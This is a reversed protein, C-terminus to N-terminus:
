NNKEHVDGISEFILGKRDLSVDVDIDYNIKSINNIKKKTKNYIVKKFGLVDSNNDELLRIFENCNDNIKNNIINIIEKINDENKLNIDEIEDLNGNIKLKIIIKNNKFNIKINKDLTKFVILKDKYYINFLYLADANNLLNFLKVDKFDIKKVIKNENFIVGQDIVYNNNNIHGYPLILDKMNSLYKELLEYYKVDIINNFESEIMQKIYQGVIKDKEKISNITDNINDDVITKFNVGVNNERTLYDIISNLKNNIADQSLVLIDLDVFYLIKNMGFSTDQIASDLSKGKGCYILSKNDEDKINEKIELTVIYNDDKYDVAIMSVVALEDLEIYNYCGTLLLCCLIIFIKKM